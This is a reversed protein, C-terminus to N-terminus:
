TASRKTILRLRTVLKNAIDEALKEIADRRSASTAFQSTTANYGSVSQIVGRAGPSDGASYTYRAIATLKIRTVEDDPQIAFAESELVVSVKFPEGESEFQVFKEFTRRITFEVRADDSLVSLASLSINEASTIPKAIPSFGCGVAMLPALLVACAAARRTTVVDFLSM